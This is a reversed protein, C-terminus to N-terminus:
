VGLTEVGGSVAEKGGDDVVRGGIDVGFSAWMVIVMVRPLLTVVLVMKPRGM